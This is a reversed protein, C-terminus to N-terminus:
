KGCVFLIKMELSYCLCATGNTTAIILSTCVYLRTVELERLGWFLGSDSGVWDVDLKARFGVESGCVGISIWGIAAWFLILFRM